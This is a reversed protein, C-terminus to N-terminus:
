FYFKGAKTYVNTTHFKVATNGRELEEGRKLTQKNTPQNSLTAAVHWHIEPISRSLCSYM